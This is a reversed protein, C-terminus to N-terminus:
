NESAGTRGVLETKQKTVPESKFPESLPKCILGYMEPRRDRFLTLTSRYNVLEDDTLQARIVDEDSTESSAIITGNPSAIASYGQFEIDGQHGASNSSIFYIGNEQARTYSRYKLANVELALKTDTGNVARGRFVGWLCCVIEAGKLALIRTLEPFRADYCIQLGINGLETKFVDATNGPYFFQKESLPIHMKHHIGIIGLPGLLVASNYVTYPIEPHKEALGVVIYIGHKKTLGSLAETTSGPITEAARVYRSAFETYSLGEYSVTGGPLAPTVYGINALEPFVILEAGEKAEAEVYSKMGEINKEVDLWQSAFQIASVRVVKKM